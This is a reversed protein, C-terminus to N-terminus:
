RISGQIVKDMESLFEEPKITGTRQWIVKGSPAIVICMPTKQSAFYNMAKEGDATKVNYKVCTIQKMTEGISDNAFINKDMEKCDKNKSNYLYLFLPREYAKSLQIAREFDDRDFYVGDAARKRFPEYMISIYTKLQGDKAMSMYLNGIEVLKKLDSKTGFQAIHSATYSFGYLEDQRLLPAIETFAAVMQSVNKQRMAKVINVNLSLLKRDPHDLTSALSDIKTLMQQDYGREPYMMIDNTSQNLYNQYMQYLYTNVKEKGINKEFAAKHQCLYDFYKSGIPSLGSHSFLSWCESTAKEEDSLISFLKEFLEELHETQGADMRTLIYDRFESANMKGNKYKEEQYTLSNKVDCGRIIKELFVDSEYTGVLRYLLEGDPNILLFTPVSSIKFEEAIGKGEKEIDYKVNIFHTNFYEGIKRLSFVQAAMKKCPECWSAHCDIFIPKNETKAKALAKQYSLQEFRIGQSFATATIFLTLVFLIIKKIM